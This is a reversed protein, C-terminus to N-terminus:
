IGGREGLGKGAEELLAKCLYMQRIIIGVTESSHCFNIRTFVLLHPPLDESVMEM